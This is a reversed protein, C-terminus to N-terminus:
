LRMLALEVDIRHPKHDLYDLAWLTLGLWVPGNHRDKPNLKLYRRLAALVEPDPDIDLPVKTYLSRDLMRQILQDDV